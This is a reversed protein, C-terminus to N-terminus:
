GKIFVIGKQSDETKNITVNSFEESDFTYYTRYGIISPISWSSDEKDMDTKIAKYVDIYNELDNDYRTGVKKWEWYQNKKKTYPEIGALITANLDALYECPITIVNNEKSVHYAKKGITILSPLKATETKEISYEECESKSAPESGDSKYEASFWTVKCSSTNINMWAGINIDFDFAVDVFEFTATGTVNDIYARVTIEDPTVTYNFQKQTHAGTTTYVEATLSVSGISKAELTFFSPHSADSPTACLISEDSSTLSYSKIETTRPLTTIEVPLSSSASLPFTYGDSYEAGTDTRIISIQINAKEIVTVSFSETEPSDILNDKTVSLTASGHKQGEISFVFVGEETSEKQSIMIADTDSKTSIDMHASAPSVRVTLIGTEGEQLLIGDEAPDYERGNDMTFSVSTEPEEADRLCFTKSISVKDDTEKCTVTVDIWHQGYSLGDLGSLIPKSQKEIIGKLSYDGQGDIKYTAEFNVDKDESSIEVILFLTPPTITKSGSVIGDASSIAASFSVKQHTTTTNAPKEEDGTFTVLKNCSFLTVFSIAILTYNLIHRM